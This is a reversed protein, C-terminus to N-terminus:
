MGPRGFLMGEVARLGHWWSAAPMPRKGAPQVEVLALAGAGTVVLVEGDGRDVIQGPQSAPLQEPVVRASLIRLPLGRLITTAGPWPDYARTMREIQVAPQSWDILGDHKHLLSTYSAQEDDQPQPQLTGAVYAPLAQLLLDAGLQFLQETLPGTRADDALAIRQQALIPGADMRATLRMVSVGTEHDGSLIAGAVPTPGRYLPLLSPHINLYGHPPLALVNKRLIEGYAAVVGIDPRLAALQAVVPDDRLTPPQLVPADLALEAAAQKVPPPQPAGSRGLPRDPRTVIAVILIRADSALVKLATAAFSPTGLFRVRIPEQHM